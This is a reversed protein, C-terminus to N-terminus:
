PFCGKGNPTSLEKCSISFTTFMVQVDEREIMSPASQINAIAVQSNTLTSQQQLGKSTINQNNAANGHQVM